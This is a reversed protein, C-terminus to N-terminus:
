VNEEYGRMYQDCLSMADRLDKYNSEFKDGKLNYDLQWKCYLEVAKTRLDTDKSGDVGVRELDLLCTDINQQIDDDLLNHTIRLKKKIVDLM